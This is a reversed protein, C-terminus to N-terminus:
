ASLRAHESMMCRNFVVEIGASRAAEESAPDRIGEQLWLAGPRASLVSPILERVRGSPRFVVVTDTRGAESVDRLARKGLVIGANPNVPVVRYGRSALYAPVRHADKAPDSSMGVVALRRGSLIARIQEDTHDDTEM